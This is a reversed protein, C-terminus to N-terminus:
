IFSGTDIFILVNSLIAACLYEVGIITLATTATVSDGSRGKRQAPITYVAIAFLIALILAHGWSWFFVGVLYPLRLGFLPGGAIVISVIAPLSFFVVLEAGTLSWKSNAENQHRAQSTVGKDTHETPTYPNDNDPM